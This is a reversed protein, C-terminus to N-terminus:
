CVPMVPWWIFNTAALLNVETVEYATRGRQTHYRGDCASKVEVNDSKEFIFLM